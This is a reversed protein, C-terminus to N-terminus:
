APWEAHVPTETNAFRVRHACIWGSDCTTIVEEEYSKSIDLPDKQDCARAVIKSSTLVVQSLPHTQVLGLGFFIYVDM